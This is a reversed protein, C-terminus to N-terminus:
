KTPTSLDLPKPEVKVTVFNYEPDSMELLKDVFKLMLQAESAISIAEDQDSESGKEGKLEVLKNGAQATLDAAQGRLYGILDKGAKSNLIKRIEDAQLKPLPLLNTQLM